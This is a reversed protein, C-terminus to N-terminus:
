GARFMRLLLSLRWFCEQIPIRQFDYEESQDRKCETSSCTHDKTLDHALCGTSFYIRQDSGCTDACNRHRRTNGLFDSRFCIRRVEQQHMRHSRVYGTYDTRRTAAPVDIAIKPTFYHEQLILFHSFHHFFVLSSLCFRDQTISM